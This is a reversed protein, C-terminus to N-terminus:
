VHQVVLSQLHADMAQNALKDARKNFERKVHLFDVNGIAGASGVAERYLPLLTKSKAAARGTMQNVILQSDGFVTLETVGMREVEKLGINLASYEAYNNTNYTSVLESATWAEMGEIYIVAGAGCVGPNGRSGGDFMLVYTTKARSLESAALGVVGVPRVVTHSLESTTLGASGAPRVVSRPSLRAAASPARRMLVDFANRIGM